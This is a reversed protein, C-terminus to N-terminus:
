EITVSLPDYHDGKFSKSQYHLNNKFKYKLCFDTDNNDDNWGCLLIAPFTLDYINMKTFLYVENEWHAYM